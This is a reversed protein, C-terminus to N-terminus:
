IKVKPIGIYQDSLILLNNYGLMHIKCGNRRLIELRETQTQKFNLFPELTDYAPAASNLYFHHSKHTVVNKTVLFDLTDLLQDKALKTNKKANKELGYKLEVLLMWPCTVGQSALLAECNSVISGDAKRFFDVHRELNVIWYSLLTPNHIHMAAIDVPKTPYIEVGRASNTQDSYDMLFADGHYVEAHNFFRNM